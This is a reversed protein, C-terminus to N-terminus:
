TLPARLQIPMPSKPTCGDSNPLITNITKRAFYRESLRVSTGSFRKTIATKIKPKGANGCCVALLNGYALENDADRPVYHEIKVCKYSDELSTMCYACLYKQEQLLATRLTAKVAPDMGDFCAGSSKAYRIFEGPPENKKIYLM